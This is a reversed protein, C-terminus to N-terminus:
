GNAYVWEEQFQAQIMEEVDDDDDDADMVETEGRGIDGGGGGGRRVPPCMGVGRFVWKGRGKVRVKMRVEKGDRRGRVLGKQKRGFVGLGGFMHARGGCLRCTREGCRPCTGSCTSQNWVSIFMGCEEKWCYM